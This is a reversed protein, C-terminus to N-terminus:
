PAAEAGRGDAGDLLEPERHHQPEQVAGGRGPESGARDAPRRARLSVLVLQRDRRLGGQGRAACLDQDPGLRHRVTGHRCRDLRLDRHGQVEPNQRWLQMRHRAVPALGARDSRRCSVRARRPHEANRPGCQGHRGRRRDPLGNRWEKVHDHGRDPRARSVAIRPHICLAIAGPRFRHDRAHSRLLDCAAVCVAGRCRSSQDPAPQVGGPRWPLTTAMDTIRTSCHRSLIRCRIASRCNSRM